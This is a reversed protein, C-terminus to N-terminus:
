YKDVPKLYLPINDTKFSKEPSSNLQLTSVSSASDAEGAV